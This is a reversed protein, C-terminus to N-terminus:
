VALVGENKDLIYLIRRKKDYELDIFNIQKIGEM